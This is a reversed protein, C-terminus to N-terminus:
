GGGSFFAKSLEKGGGTDGANMKGVVKRLRLKGSKDSGEGALTGFLGIKCLLQLNREGAFSCDFHVLNAVHGFIRRDCAHFNGRIQSGFHQARMAVLELVEQIIGIAQQLHDEGGLTRSAARAAAWATATGAETSAAPSNGPAATSRPHATAQGAPIQP